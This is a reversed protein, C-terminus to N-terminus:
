DQSHCKLRSPPPEHELLNPFVADQMNRNCNVTHMFLHLARISQRFWCKGFHKVRTNKSDLGHNSTGHAVTQSINELLGKSIFDWLKFLLCSLRLEHGQVLGTVLFYFLHYPSFTWQHLRWGPPQLLAYAWCHLWLCVILSSLWSRPIRM